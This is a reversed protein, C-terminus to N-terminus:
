PERDKTREKGAESGNAKPPRQLDETHRRSSAHKSPHLFHLQHLKEFERVGLVGRISFTRQGSLPNSTFIQPSAKKGNSTESAAPNELFPLLLFFLIAMSLVIIIIKGAIKAKQKSSM